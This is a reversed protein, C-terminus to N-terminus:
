QTLGSADRIFHENSLLQHFCLLSHDVLPGIGLALAVLTSLFLARLFIGM